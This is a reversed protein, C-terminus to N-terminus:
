IFILKLYKIIKIWKHLKVINKNSKLKENVFIKHAGRLAM